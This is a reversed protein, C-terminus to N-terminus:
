ERKMQGEMRREETGKEHSRGLRVQYRTEIWARLKKTGGKSTRESFNRNDGLIAPIVNSARPLPIHCGEGEGEGEGGEEGAALGALAPTHVHLCVQM